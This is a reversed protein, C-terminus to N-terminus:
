KEVIKFGFNINTDLSGSHEINVKECYGRDKAKCKLFFIISATDGENIKKMLANEVFDVAINNISDAKTKFEPDKMYLYYTDRGIGMSKCAGSINGLSKELFELLLKKQAKEITKTRM